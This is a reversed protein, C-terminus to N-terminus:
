RHLLGMTETAETAFAAGITIPRGTIVRDDDLRDGTAILENLAGLSAVKPVPVPHRRRSRGTEGEVGGKEHAGRIGPRCFFSDFGYDESRDVTVFPRDHITLM